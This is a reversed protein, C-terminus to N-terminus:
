QNRQNALRILLYGITGGGVFCAPFLLIQNVHLHMGVDGILIGTAVAIAVMLIIPLHRYM